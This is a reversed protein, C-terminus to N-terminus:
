SSRLQQGSSEDGPVHDRDMHLSGEAEGCNKISAISYVQLTAIEKRSAELSARLECEVKCAQEEASTAQTHLVRVAEDCLILLFVFDQSQLRAFRAICIWGQEEMEEIRAQMQAERAKARRHVDNGEQIQNRLTELQAQLTDVIKAWGIEM